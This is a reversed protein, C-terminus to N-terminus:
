LAERFVRNMTEKFKDLSHKEQTMKAINRRDTLSIKNMDNVIEELEKPNIGRKICRYHTDSAAIYQSAHKNSSDTIMLISLGHSLAELATIGWSELPWTSVLVGGKSMTYLTEPHSLGRFVFQPEQWKLNFDFYDQEKPNKLINNSGTIVATKLNTSQGKRHLWFPDKSRITRGITVADFERDESYVNETGSCCSSNLYGKVNKITHGLIRKSQADFFEHQHQSVFYLHGGSNTFKEFAKLMEINKMTRELPEHCLWVIPLDYRTLDSGYIKSADNIFIVDPQNTWMEFHLSGKGTRKKRQEETIEIPIINSVNEYVLKKFREIGGFIKNSHISLGNQVLYPMLVKPSSV